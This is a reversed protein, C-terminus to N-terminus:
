PTSGLRLRHLRVTGSFTDIELRGGNTGLAPGLTARLHRLGPGEDLRLGLGLTSELRGRLTRIELETGAEAGDPAPRDPVTVEVDGSHTALLAGGAPVPGTWVITGGVTTAEISGDGAPERVDVRGSTTEVRAGGALGTLTVDTAGGTVEARGSLEELLTAGQLCTVTVPGSGDTVRVTGRVVTVDVPGGRGTATVSILPGRIRVPLWAPADIEYDIPGPPGTEGEIRIVVREGDVEFSEAGAAWSASLVELVGGDRRTVIEEGSPHRARIRVGARDWTRVEVRGAFGGIELTEGREIPLWRETDTASAPLAGTLPAGLLLALVVFPTSRKM